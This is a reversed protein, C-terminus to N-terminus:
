AKLIFQSLTDQIMPTKQFGGGLHQWYCEAYDVGAIEGLTKGEKKMEGFFDDMKHMVRMLEIQTHHHSLMTMKDDIVTSIDLYFHPKLTEGGLPDTLGLPSSHYLLPTVELPQQELPINPLSSVMTAAEVISATSRHDAHYDGSLHTIIVGPRFDRILALTELRLAETDYLFGDRGSLCHYSAGISEAAIRAEEKRLAITKEETSNIGGMGGATMTAIAIEFGAKRLLVLLGASFAETDDPHAHIALVRKPFDISM